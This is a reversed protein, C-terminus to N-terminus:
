TSLYIDQKSPLDIDPEMPEVTNENSFRIAVVNRALKGISDVTNEDVKWGSFSKKDNAFARFATHFYCLIKYRSDYRTTRGDLEKRPISVLTGGKGGEKKWEKALKKKLRTVPHQRNEMVNGGYELYHFFQECKEPYVSSYLFHSVATVNPMSGILTSKMSEGKSVSAELEPYDQVMRDIVENRPVSDKGHMLTFILKATVAVGTPNKVGRVKLADKAARTQNQDFYVFTEEPLGRVVLFKTPIGSGAVASLRHQGELMKGTDSIFIPNIIDEIYEGNYMAETLRNVHAYKINRQNGLRNDLLRLAKEKDIYEMTATMQVPKDLIETDWRLIQETM